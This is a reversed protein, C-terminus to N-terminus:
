KSLVVLMIKSIKLKFQLNKTNKIDTLNQQSGSSGNRSTSEEVRLSHGTGSIKPRDDANM